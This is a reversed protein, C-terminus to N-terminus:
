PKQAATNSYTTNVFRIMHWTLNNIQTGLDDWSHGNPIRQISVETRKIHGWWKKLMKKSEPAM